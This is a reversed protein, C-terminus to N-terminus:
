HGEMSDDRGWGQQGYKGLFENRCSVVILEEALM